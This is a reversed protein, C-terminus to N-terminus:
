ESQLINYIIKTDTSNIIKDYVQKKNLISVIHALLKLYAAEKGIPAAVAILIRVPIKDLSHYDIGNKSLGIAIVFDSVSALKVHPVGIGLGIGTSLIKERELLKCLLENKDKISSSHIMVNWLEKLAQKKTSSQLFIINNKDLYKNLKISSM